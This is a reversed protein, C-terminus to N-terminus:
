SESVSASADSAMRRRTKSASSYMYRYWKELSSEGGAVVLESALLSLGSREPM